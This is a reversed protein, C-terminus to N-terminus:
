DQPSTRVAQAETVTVAVARSRGIVGLDGGGPAGTVTWTAHWEITATVNFRGGPQDSSARSWAYSCDTTQEDDPRSADYERGPGLCVIPPSGDGMQWVVREPTATATVAVGPVSVTASRPAWASPDISLWTAVNVVQSRDSPPNMRIAPSPLGLRDRAEQALAAPDVAKPQPLWIVDSEGGFMGDGNTLSCTRRYWAGDGQGKPNGLGHAALDDAIASDEPSLPSYDCIIPPPADSATTATDSDGRSGSGSAATLDIGDQSTTADGRGGEALAPVAWRLSVVGVIAVTVCYRGARM